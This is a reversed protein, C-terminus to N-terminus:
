WFDGTGFIDFLDGINGFLDYQGDFKVDNLSFTLNLHGESTSDLKITFNDFNTVNLNNLTGNLRCHYEFIIQILKDVNSSKQKNNRWQQIFSGM